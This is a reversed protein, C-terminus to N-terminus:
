SEDNKFEVEGKKMKILRFLFTSFWKGADSVAQSFGAVFTKRTTPLKIKPNVPAVPKLGGGAQKHGTGTQGIQPAEEVERMWWKVEEPVGSERRDLDIILPETREEAVKKEVLKEKERAMKELYLSFSWGGRTGRPSYDFLHYFVAGAKALNAVNVINMAPHRKGGGDEEDGEDGKKDPKEPSAAKTEIGANKKGKIM